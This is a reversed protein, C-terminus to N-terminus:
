VAVRLPDARRSSRGPRVAAAGHAQWGRGGSHGQLGRGAAASHGERGGARKHRGAGCGKDRALLEDAAAAVAALEGDEAKLLLAGVRRSASLAGRVDPDLGFAPPAAAPLLPVRPLGPLGGPLRCM